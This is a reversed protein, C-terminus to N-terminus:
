FGRYLIKEIRVYAPNALPANLFDTGDKWFEENDMLRDYLTTFSEITKHQMLVYLTPSNAGYRVRFVGVPSIGM